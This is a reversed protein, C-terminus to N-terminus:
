KHTTEIFCRLHVVQSTGQRQTVVLLLFQQTTNPLPVPMVLSDFSVTPPITLLAVPNGLFSFKIGIPHM